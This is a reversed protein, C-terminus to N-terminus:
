DRNVMAVAISSRNCRAVEAIALEIGHIVYTMKISTKEETQIKIEAVNGISISHCRTARLIDAMQRM